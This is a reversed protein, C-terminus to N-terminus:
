RCDEVGPCEASFSRVALLLAYNTAHMADDQQTEPHSYRVTRTIDDYQAVECAFEDLLSGCDEERPFLITKKKVRSFLAGITASRNVTWKTLVGDQHPEHDAASYLIAYLGFPRSLRDLLLRNLVHGNGGGDAAILRVRFEACRKAM